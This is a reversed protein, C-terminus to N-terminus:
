QRKIISGILASLNTGLLFIQVAVEEPAVSQDPLCDTYILMLRGLAACVLYSAKSPKFFGTFDLAVHSMDTLVEKEIDTNFNPLTVPPNIVKEFSELIEIESLNLISTTQRQTQRFHPRVPFASSMSYLLILLLLIFMSKM